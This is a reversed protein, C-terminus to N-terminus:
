EGRKKEKKEERKEGRKEEEGERMEISIFVILLNVSYRYCLLLYFVM